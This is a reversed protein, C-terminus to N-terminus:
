RFNSPLTLSDYVLRDVRLKRQIIEKIRTKRKVLVVELRIEVDFPNLNSFM